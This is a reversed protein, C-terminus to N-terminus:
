SNKYSNLKDCTLGEELCFTLPKEFKDFFIFLLSVDSHAEM